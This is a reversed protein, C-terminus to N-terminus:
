SDGATDDPHKLRGGLYGVLGGVLSLVFPASYFLFPLFHGATRGIYARNVLYMLFLSLGFSALMGAYSASVAPWFCSRVGLKRGGVRLGAGVGLPFGLLVGIIGGTMTTFMVGTGIQDWNSKDGIASGVLSGVFGVGLGGIVGGALGAMSLVVLRPLTVPQPYAGEPSAGTESGQERGPSLLYGFLGGLFPFTLSFFSLPGPVFRVLVLRALAGLYAAGVVPLFRSGMVSGAGAVGLVARVGLCYGLSGGVLADYAVLFRAPGFGPWSLSLHFFVFASGAGFLAGGALAAADVFRSRPRSHNLASVSDPEPDKVPADPEPM